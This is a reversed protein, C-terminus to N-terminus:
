SEPDERLVIGTCTTQKWLCDGLSYCLPCLEFYMNLIIVDPKERSAKLNM